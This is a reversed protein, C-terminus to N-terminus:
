AGTDSKITYQVLDTPLDGIQIGVLIIDTPAPLEDAFSQIVFEYEYDRDLIVPVVEGVSSYMIDIPIKTSGAVQSIVIKEDYGSFYGLIIIDVAPKIVVTRKGNDDTNKVPIDITVNKLKIATKPIARKKVIVDIADDVFDRKVNSGIGFGTMLGRNGTFQGREMAM